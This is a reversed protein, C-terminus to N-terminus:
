PTVFDLDVCIHQLTAMGAGSNGGGGVVGVVGSRETAPAPNPYIALRCGTNRPHTMWTLRAFKCTYCLLPAGEWASACFLDGGRKRHSDPATRWLEKRAM